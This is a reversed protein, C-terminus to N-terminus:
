SFFHQMEWTLWYLFLWKIFWQQFNFNKWNSCVYTTQSCQLSIFLLTGISFHTKQSRLLKIWFHKPCIDLQRSSSPLAVIEYKLSWPRSAQREPHQANKNMRYSLSSLLLSTEFFSLSYIYSSILEKPMSARHVINAMSFLKLNM